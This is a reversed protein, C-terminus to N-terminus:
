LTPDLRAIQALETCNENSAQARGCRTHIVQDTAALPHLVLHCRHVVAVEDYAVLGRESRWELELHRRSPIVCVLDCFMPGISLAEPFASLVMQSANMQVLM